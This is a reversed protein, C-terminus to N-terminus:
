NAEPSSGALYKTHAEKRAARIQVERQVYCLEVEWPVSNLNLDGVRAISDLLGRQAGYLEADDMTSLDDLNNKKPYPIHGNSQGGQNKQNKAM